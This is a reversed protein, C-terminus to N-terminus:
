EKLTTLLGPDPDPDAISRHFNTRTQNVTQKESKVSFNVSSIASPFVASLVWWFFIMSCRLFLFNPSCSTTLFLIRFPGFPGFGREHLFLLFDLGAGACSLVVSGALFFRLFFFFIAECKGSAPDYVM